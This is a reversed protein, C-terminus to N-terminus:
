NTQRLPRRSNIYKHVPGVACLFYCARLHRLNNFNISGKLLFIEVLFHAFSEEGGGGGGREKVCVTM